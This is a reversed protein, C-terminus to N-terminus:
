KVRLVLGKLYHGEPHFINVPHDPGQTLHHLVQVERGAELSAAVITNYFLMRDVVQSCSFTFLLGGPSVRKLGEANLRKYGQLARHRAQISKAFAPPDLVVIDYQEDSSKLWKMVDEVLGKHQEKGENLNVNRECLVMAKESIDVSLVETAGASLAFVSFGGSYSFTNLVRKGEAYHALLHRNERQDLFFGTKQGKEFDIEFKRGYELSGRPLESSGYLFGNTISSAYDDPLSERSKDYVAVLEDGMVVRLAEAIDAASRHMGISHAQLVAVGNYVDVVLGSLHDGEGHVLRFANTGALKLGKRLEWACALKSEWFLQDVPKQEYSLIRIKISGHHYHGVALFDRGASLVKVIDGDSLGSPERAVAGSFIWPHRRKVASDKGKQLIIEPLDEFAGIM